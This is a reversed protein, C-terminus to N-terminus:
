SKNKKKEDINTTIGYVEEYYLLAVRARRKLEEASLNVRDGVKGLSSNTGVSVRAKSGRKMNGNGLIILNMLLTNM